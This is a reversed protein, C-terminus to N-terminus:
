ALPHDHSERSDGLNEESMGRSTKSWSLSWIWAAGSFNCEVVMLAVLPNNAQNCPYPILVHNLTQENIVKLVFETEIEKFWLNYSIGHICKNILRVELFQQFFNMQRKGCQFPAFPRLLYRAIELTLWKYCLNKEESQWPLEISHSIERCKFRSKDWKTPRM